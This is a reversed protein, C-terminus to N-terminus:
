GSGDATGGFQHAEQSVCHRLVRGSCHSSLTRLHRQNASALKRGVITSTRWRWTCDFEHHECQGCFETGRDSLVRLLPVEHEEVFPLVRDNLLDAAVLANKRDYLRAFAVKAYTDLFTQQYIRGVSKITGVYNPDQTGLYGPHLTEIEGRAEKEERAREL